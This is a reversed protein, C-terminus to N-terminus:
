RHAEEEDSTCFPNKWEMLIAHNRSEEDELYDPIVDVPMRGCRLLFTMVPDSLEGKLVRAAYERATMEDAHRHYGSLRGGGLLRALKREVVLEYMAQMMARGIGYSRFAPRVSIDVIYLTRGAPDHTRIYGEDTVDAWKGHATGAHEQVLMGTISGALKGDMEVCLAGEPFLSVHNHLQERNWYLEEPFPPPFSERQIEILEDFDQEAYNRILAEQPQRQKDFLYLRKRYM